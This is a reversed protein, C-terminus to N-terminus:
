LFSKKKRSRFSFELLNHALLLKTFVGNVAWYLIIKEFVCVIWKRGSSGSYVFVSSSRLRAQNMEFSDVWIFEGIRLHKMRRSLKKWGLNGDQEQVHEHKGEGVCQNVEAHFVLSNTLSGIWTHLRSLTKSLFNYSFSESCLTNVAFYVIKTDM